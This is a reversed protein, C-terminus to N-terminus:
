EEDVVQDLRREPKLGGQLRAWFTRSFAPEPGERWGCGAKAQGERTQAGLDEQGQGRPGGGGILAEM